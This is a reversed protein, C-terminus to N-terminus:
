PASGAKAYEAMGAAWAARTAPADGNGDRLTHQWLKWLPAHENDLLWAGLAPAGCRM